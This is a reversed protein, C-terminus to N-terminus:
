WTVPMARPGRFFTETRWQVPGAPRLGPMRELLAALAEHLELRGLAAGLCHHLGYGFGLHGTADRDPDIRDPHPFRGPDRNAAGISVLVPEGARVVTGGIRVDEAAYHAFMAGTALPTYRLLEEIAAPLRAPAARLAARHEPHRHLLYWFNPIQASSAEYGAVLIAICLLVLEPESLAGAEDRAAILATILDDAPEARRRDILDGIYGRLAGFAAATAPGADPGTALLADNWGRFRDRDAHPVGLLTCILATPMPVAFDAVLDAPPGKALMADILERALQRVHPRLAGVRRATFAQGALRRIRSLAPPDMTVIGGIARPLARPADRDAAAARSFRRDALVQRAEDWRTVLWAPEGLPLRVRTLGPAALAARYGVGLDLGTFDNFPYPCEEM